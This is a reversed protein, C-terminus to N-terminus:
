RTLIKRKIFENILKGAVGKKFQRPSFCHINKIKKELEKIDYVAIIYGEEELARVLEEQSHNAEGLLRPIAIVKKNKKICESLIGYGGHSIVYIAYDICKEMESSSLFRVAKINKSKFNYNTHGCQVIIDDKIREAIEDIKKALRVFPIPLNGFCVFIM